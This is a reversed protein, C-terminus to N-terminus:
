EAPLREHFYIVAGMTPLFPIMALMHWWILNTKRRRHSRFLYIGVLQPLLGGATELATISGIMPAGAGFHRLVVVLVTSSPVMNWQFGGVADGVTNGVENRVSVPAEIKTGTETM